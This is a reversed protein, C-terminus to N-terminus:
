STILLFKVYTRSYIYIKVSKLFFDIKELHGIQNAFTKQFKRLFDFKETILEKCFIKRVFVEM